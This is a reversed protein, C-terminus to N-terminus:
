FGLGREKLSVYGDRTIVVHDVVVIDLARGAAVIEKTVAGDEASPEPDGSPHNHVVILNPCNRRVAERFVEATRITTSNVSGVFVVPSAVVENKTNMVLVRFYEQELQTMEATLLRAVDAPMSIVPLEASKVAAMRKGLEAADLLQAARAEGFGHLACLEVHSARALGDLGRVQALLRSAMDLVSEAASGTRLLIALLEVNSLSAPGRDRLRERPREGGPLDRIMLRYGADLTRAGTPADARTTSMAAIM